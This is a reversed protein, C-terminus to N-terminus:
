ARGDLRALIAEAWTKARELEGNLLPGEHHHHVHFTEPPVLRKGGLKRLKRDVRKAATFRALLASMEYSTDFAAVPVGRLSRRPLQEFIPRVAQPLNMKHTPTGMVVLDVGQLDAAELQEASATRATGVEDFTEAIAEAVQRTNGFESHYVVLANM